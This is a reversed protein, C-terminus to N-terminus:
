GSRHREALLAIVDGYSLGEAELLVMMHYILDAAESVIEEAETALILEVAEEGTKKRIKSPGKSFLHTTYSGEPLTRHREAILEGLESLVTGVTETASQSGHAAPTAPTSFAADDAEDPAKPRQADIEATLSIEFWRNRDTFGDACAAGGGGYPLVRRTEPDVIWLEGRELTKNRSKENCLAIDGISGNPRRIVLGTHTM